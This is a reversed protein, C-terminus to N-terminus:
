SSNDCTAWSDCLLQVISPLLSYKVLGSFTV